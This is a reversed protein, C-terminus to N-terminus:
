GPAIVGTVYLHVTTGSCIKPVIKNYFNKYWKVAEANSHMITDPYFDSAQMSRKGNTAKQGCLICGESWTTSAGPHFLCGPKHDTALM